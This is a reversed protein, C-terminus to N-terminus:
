SLGFFEMDLQGFNPFGHGVGVGWVGELNEGYVSTTMGNSPTNQQQSVPKTADYGFVGSWQDITEQFNQPYLTTDASGHYIRMRPRSGEYGPYSDFVAQAWEEPSHNVEGHACQTNWGNVTGTFFCSHPVGSYVVGAAFLDPYTAAM